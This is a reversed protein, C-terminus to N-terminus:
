CVRARLKMINQVKRWVKEMIRDYSEHRKYVENNFCRDCVHKDTDVCYISFPREGCECLEDTEM